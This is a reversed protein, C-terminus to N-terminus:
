QGRRCRVRESIVCIVPCCVQKPLLRINFGPNVGSLAELVGRLPVLHPDFQVELVASLLRDNEAARQLLAQTEGASGYATSSNSGGQVASPGNPGRDQGFPSHALYQEVATNDENM